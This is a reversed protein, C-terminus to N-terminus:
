CHQDYVSRAKVMAVQTYPSVFEDYAQDFLKVGRRFENCAAYHNGSKAYRIATDLRANGRELLRQATYPDAKAPYDNGVCCILASAIALLKKM